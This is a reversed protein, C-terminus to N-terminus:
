RYIRAAARRFSAIERDLVAVLRQNTGDAAFSVDELRRMAQAVRDAGIALASGRLTHTAFKWQTQDTATKLLDVMLPLQLLFLGVIERELAESDM